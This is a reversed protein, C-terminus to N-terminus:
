DSRSEVFDKFSNLWKQTQKKFMNPFLITMLRPMVWAIRTYHIEATYRTQQDNLAVFTSKMTNDMHKHEYLGNFSEPLDNCLITEKLEMEHKRFQYYMMSVAGKEGATGSILKKRLFGPHYDKLNSPDAFLAAVKDIPQDIDVSASFKM